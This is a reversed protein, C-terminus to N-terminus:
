DLPPGERLGATTEPLTLGDVNESALAALGDFDEPGVAAYGGPYFPNLADYAAPELQELGLMYTEIRRKDGPPLSAVLALPGHTIPPSRWVIAIDGIDLEGSAVLNALTGRSYGLAADGSLSSWAFAADAIGSVVLRVAEEPSETTIVAGFGAPNMGEALLGALQMRRAGLSDEAGTAVTKGALDAAAGIGSEKRAVIIARYAVAGDAAAPAVIPELCRCQAEAIAYSSATYFGGDIRRQLQADIMAGHSSMPLLEVPRRLRQSLAFSVPSLAAMRAGVRRGAFVGLRLPQPPRRAAARKADVPGGFRTLRDELHDRPKAQAPAAAEEGSGASPPANPDVLVTPSDGPRSPDAPETGSPIATTQAPEDPTGAAPPGEPPEGASPSQLTQEGPTESLSRGPTQESPSEAAPEGSAGGPEDPNNLGLRRELWPKLFRLPSPQGQVGPSGSTAAAPQNPQGAEAPPTPQEQAIPADPEEQAAAPTLGLALALAIGCADAKRM